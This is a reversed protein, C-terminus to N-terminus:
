GNLLTDIRGIVDKPDPRVLALIAAHSVIVYMKKEYRITVAERKLYFAYDGPEAQLALYRVAHRREVWPREESYEPNATLYGPGVKVIRGTRVLDGEAVAAPLVLGGRTTQEDEVPEILVRDGIIILESLKFAGKGVLAM